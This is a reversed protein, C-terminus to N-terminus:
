RGVRVMRFVEAPTLLLDLLMRIAVAVVVLALILRLREGPLKMGLRAGWRTGLGSGLILILALVPDVAQNVGAQMVSVAATTFLLQFLSTGVVVNTSIRLLYIMVPVMVFGGGVGMLSTLMGVASGVLIPVLLSIQLGSVPFQMHWPLRRVAEALHKGLGTAAAPPRRHAAGLSEVLMSGGIVGLLLV